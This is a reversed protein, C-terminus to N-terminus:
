LARESVWDALPAWLAAAARGATMMGVHGLPARLSTARPFLAALPAASGPPVIRDAAPLGVLVPSRLLEPRIREGGLRWLGRSPENEGYWSRACEEAVRGALPVGDNVWDELAVFGRAEEEDLAAFRAFKRRGLFPDLLFFFSQVVEVPLSGSKKSLLPFFDALLGFLRAEKQREAHFDWPTALLILASLEAERSLALALSLLGGMCYGLLFLRRKAINRAADFARALRGAVYDALTFGREAAGPAGWDVVLPRLGRGALYRLFSREPLLDLVYYRNVLSPVVLVPAGERGNDLGYDLLRTSGEQWLVPATEPPRRFPHRRYAEIGRLVANAESAVLTELAAAVKEEGEKGIEALLAKLRQGPANSPLFASKSLPFAARSSLWFCLAALLHAPFPRPALRRDPKPAKGEPNMVTGEPNMSLAPKKRFLSGNKSRM